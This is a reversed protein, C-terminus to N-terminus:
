KYREEKSCGKGGLGLLVSQSGPHLGSNYAKIWIRGCGDDIEIKLFSVLLTVGQLNEIGDQPAFHKFLAIQGLAGCYVKGIKWAAHVDVLKKVFAAPHHFAPFELHRLLRRSGRNPRVLADVLFRLLRIFSFDNM